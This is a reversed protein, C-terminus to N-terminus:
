LHICRNTCSHLGQESRYPELVRIGYDLAKEFDCVGICGDFAADLLRGYNVNLPHLVDKIDRVCAEAIHLHEAFEIFCFNRLFQNLTIIVQSVRIRM